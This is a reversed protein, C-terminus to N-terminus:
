SAAVVGALATLAGAIAGVPGGGRAAGIAAGAIVTGVGNAVARDEATRHQHCRIAVKGGAVCYQPTAEVVAVDQHASPGAQTVLVSSTFVAVALLGAGTTRRAAERM